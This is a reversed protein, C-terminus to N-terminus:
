LSLEEPAKRYPRLRSRCLRSCTTRAPPVPFLSAPRIIPAGCVVCDRYEAPRPRQNLSQERATAWRVNGPEYHGNNNPWRDLSHKASPRPGIHVYFALFNERWEDCMRIGRGGYSPYKANKPNYCRGKARTWARHEPTGAQGHVTNAEIRHLRALCGCSRSKGSRLDSSMVTRTVGCQCRCIWASGSPKALVTWYCYTETAM